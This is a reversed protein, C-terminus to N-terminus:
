LKKKLNIFDNIVNLLTKLKLANSKGHTRLNLKVPLEKHKKKLYILKILIEANFFFGNSDIKIEKLIQTKYFTTGNYYKLNLKFFFNLIKTFSSSLIKRTLGRESTIPYLSIMDYDKIFNLNEFISVLNAEDDGPIVVCNEKSSLMLGNKFSGGYGLNIKNQHIIINKNNQFTNNVISFTKDVSQDDIFIIEYEIKQDLYNQLDRIVKVITKEENFCPVIISISM